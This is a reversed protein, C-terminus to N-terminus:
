RNTNWYEHLRVLADTKGFAGAKTVVPLRDMLGGRIRGQVMGTIVQGQISVGTSGLADLVAAATDGGSSQWGKLLAAPM